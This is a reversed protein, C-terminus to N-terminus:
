PRPEKLSKRYNTYSCFHKASDIEFGQRAGSFAIFSNVIKKDVVPCHFHTSLLALKLMRPRRRVTYFLSRSGTSSKKSERCVMFLKLPSKVSFLVPFFQYIFSDILRTFICRITFPVYNGKLFLNHGGSKLYSRTKLLDFHKGPDILLAKM